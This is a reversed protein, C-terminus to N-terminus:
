MRSVLQVLASNQNPAGTMLALTDTEFRTQPYVGGRDTTKKYIGPSVQAEVQPGFAYVKAGAALQLGFSVGDQQQTLSDAKVIRTWAPGVTADLATEQGTSLSFVQVSALADCRLYIGFCYQFWSAAAITQYVRQAAQGTNTIAVGSSGGSPDAIGGSIQLMPDTIWEPKTWDESWMLLNDAPDLFTFTNLQGETAEFLQEISSWEADTLGSYHLQWRVASAGPDSMRITDGSALTNSITRLTRRRTMPFQSVAGTSLQPYYLM